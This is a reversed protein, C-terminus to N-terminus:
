PQSYYKENIGSGINVSPNEPYLGEVVTPVDLWVVIESQYGECECSEDQNRDQSSGLELFHVRHWLFVSLSSELFTCTLDRRVV